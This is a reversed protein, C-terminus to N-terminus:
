SILFRYIQSGSNTNRRVLLVPLEGRSIPTEVLSTPRITSHIYALSFRSPSLLFFSPTYLKRAFSFPIFFPNSNALLSLDTSQTIPIYTLLPVFSSSYPVISTYFHSLSHILPHFISLSLSLLSDFFDQPVYFIIRKKVGNREVFRNGLWWKQFTEVPSSPLYGCLPYDERFIDAIM